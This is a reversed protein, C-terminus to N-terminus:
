ENVHISLQLSSWCNTCAPGLAALCGFMLAADPPSGIRHTTRMARLSCPKASAVSPPETKM